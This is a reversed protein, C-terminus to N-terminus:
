TTWFGLCRDLMVTWRELLDRLLGAIALSGFRKEAGPRGTGSGLVEIQERPRLEAEKSLV